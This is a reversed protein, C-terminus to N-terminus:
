PNNLVEERVMHLRITAPQQPQDFYYAAVTEKVNRRLEGWNDAQTFIGVTLCDAIYGGDPEQSVELVIESM